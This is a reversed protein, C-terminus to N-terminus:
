LKKYFETKETNVPLTGMEENQSNYLKLGFNVFGNGNSIVDFVRGVVEYETVGIRYNIKLFRIIYDQICLLHM